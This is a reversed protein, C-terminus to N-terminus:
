GEMHEKTYTCMNSSTDCPHYVEPHEKLYMLAAHIAQYVASNESLDSQLLEPFVKGVLDGIIFRHRNQTEKEKAAAKRKAEGHLRLKKEWDPLENFPTSKHEKM